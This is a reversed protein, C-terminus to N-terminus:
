AQPEPEDDIERSLADAFDRISRQGLAQGRNVLLRALGSPDARYAEICALAAKRLGPTGPHFQYRIDGTLRIELLNHAALHDLACRATAESLLLQQAVASADWWRGSSGVLADLLVLDDYSRLHAAVFAVVTPWNNSRL